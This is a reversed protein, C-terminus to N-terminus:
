TNALHALAVASALYVLFATSALSQWLVMPLPLFDESILRLVPGTACPIITDM